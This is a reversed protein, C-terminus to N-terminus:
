KKVGNNKQNKLLYINLFLKNISSNREISIFNIMLFVALILLTLAIKEIITSSLICLILIFLAFITYIIYMQKILISIKNHEKILKKIKIYNDNIM